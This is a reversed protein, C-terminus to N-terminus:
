ISELKFGEKYKDLLLYFDKFKKTEWNLSTVFITDINKKNKLRIDFVFQHNASMAEYVRCTDRDPTGDMYTATVIIIQTDINVSGKSHIVITQPNIEILREIYESTDIDKYYTRNSYFKKTTSAQSYQRLPLMLILLIIFLTKM